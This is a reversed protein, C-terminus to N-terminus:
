ENLILPMILMLVDEHEDQVSPLVIGPRSPDGLMVKVDDSDLSSLVECFYDGRFGIQLPQGNYECVLTEKASTAFDIDEASLQLSGMSLRFRILQSSISAFPLVRRISDMLAKRDILLENPNDTPIAANYNPFTGEILQCRLTGDAFSLEAANNNFKIVVDGSTPDLGNKLLNAPKKPLIFSAPTESKIDYNRCRVLKHGDSAVIALHEPTLDFYVGNMVPRIENNDTAFLTRSLNNVLVGADITLTHIDGEMPQVQPYEEANQAVLQYQGNQYEVTVQFSDLNVDFALPQEPLLKVADLILHSSIAFSGESDCENLSVLSTMRNEGDSATIRLQGQSVDFVFCELIPMSNKSNIVKVLTQLRTSLASSSLSFRM